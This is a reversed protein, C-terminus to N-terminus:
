GLDIVEGKAQPFRGAAARLAAATGGAALLEAVFQSLESPVDLKARYAIV